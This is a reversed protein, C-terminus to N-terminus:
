HLIRTKLSKGKGEFIKLDELDISIYPFAAFPSIHSGKIEIHGTFDENVHTILEKVIQQQKFYVVTTLVSLAIVPVLFVALLLKIWFKKGFRKKSNVEIKGEKMMLSKFITLM